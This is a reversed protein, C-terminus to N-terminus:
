YESRALELDGAWRKLSDVWRVRTFPVARFEAVTMDLGDPKAKAMDFVPWGWKDVGLPAPLVFRTFEGGTLRSGYSVVVVDGERADPSHATVFRDFRPDFFTCSM